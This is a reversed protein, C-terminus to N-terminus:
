QQVYCRFGHLYFCFENLQLRNVQNRLLVSPDQLFHQPGIFAHVFPSSFGGDYLHEAILQSTHTKGSGVDGHFALVLAKRPNPNTFHSYLADLIANTAIHQGFVEASFNKGLRKWGVIIIM